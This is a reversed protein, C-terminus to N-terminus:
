GVINIQKLYISQGSGIWIWSGMHCVPLCKFVCLTIMLGQCKNEFYRIDGSDIWKQSGMLFVSLSPSPIYDFV